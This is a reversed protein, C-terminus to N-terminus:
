AAEGIAPALAGRLAAAHRAALAEADALAGQGRLRLLIDAELLGTRTPRSALSSLAWGSAAFDAALRGLAGDDAARAALVLLRPEPAHIPRNSVVWWLGSAEGDIDEALVAFGQAAMARTGLMAVSRDGGLIRAATEAGSDQAACVAWPMSIRVFDEALPLSAHGGYVKRVDEPRVEPHALLCARFPIEQEHVVYLPPVSGLVADVLPTFGGARTALSGIATDIEGSRVAAFMAKADPYPKPESLRPFAARVPVAAQSAFSAASGITGFSLPTDDM